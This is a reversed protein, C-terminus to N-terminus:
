IKQCNKCVGYFELTHNVITFAHKKTIKKEIVTVDNALEVDEVKDCELCILHHHHDEPMLEYRKKNEGFQVEQVIQEHKLAALERYITTKNATIKKKALAILLDPVAIPEHHTSLIEVVATRIKSTRYGKASFDALLRESHSVTM